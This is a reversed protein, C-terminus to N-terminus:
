IKFKSTLFFKYLNDLPPPPPPPLTIQVFDLVFATKEQSFTGLNYCSTFVDNKFVIIKEHVPTPTRPRAPFKRETRTKVLNQFYENPVQHGIYPFVFVQNQGSSSNKQFIKLDSRYIFIHHGGNVMTPALSDKDIILLPFSNQM